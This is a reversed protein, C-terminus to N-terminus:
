SWTVKNAGFNVEAVRRFVVQTADENVDDSRSMQVAEILIDLTYTGNEYQPNLPDAFTVSDLVKISEGPGLIFNYYYWGDDPVNIDWDTAFTPSSWNLTVLKQGAPLWPAYDSLWAGEYEWMESYTMRLFVPFTSTNKFYVEKDRTAGPEIWPIYPTPTPTPDEPDDPEWGPPPTWLPDPTWGPRITPTPFVEEIEVDGKGHSRLMNEQEVIQTNWALTGGIGLATVGATVLLVIVVGHWVRFKRNNRNNSDKM